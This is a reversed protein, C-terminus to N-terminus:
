IARSRSCGEGTTVRLRATATELVPRHPRQAKRQDLREGWFEGAVEIEETEREPVQLLEAAAVLRPDGEIPRDREGVGGRFGGVDARMEVPQHAVARVLPGARAAGHGGFFDVGRQRSAPQQRHTRPRAPGGM